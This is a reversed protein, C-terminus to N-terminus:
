AIVLLQRAAVWIDVGGVQVVVLQGGDLSDSGYEAQYWKLGKRVIGVMGPKLMCSFPSGMAREPVSLLRVQAHLYPFRRGRFQHVAHWKPWGCSACRDDLKQRFRHAQTPDIQPHGLGLLKYHAQTDEASPRPMHYINM